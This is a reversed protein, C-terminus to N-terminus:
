KFALEQNLQLQRPLSQEQEQMEPLEFTDYKAEKLPLQRHTIFSFGITPGPSSFMSTGEDALDSSSQFSSFKSEEARYVRKRILILLVIILVIVIAVILSPFWPEGAKKPSEEMHIRVAHWVKPEFAEM